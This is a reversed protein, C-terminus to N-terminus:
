TMACHTPILLREGLTASARRRMHLINGTKQHLIDGSRAFRSSGDLYYLIVWNMDLVVKEKNGLCSRHFQTNRLKKMEKGNRM